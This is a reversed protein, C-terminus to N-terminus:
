VTGTAPASLSTGLLLTAMLCTILVGSIDMVVQISTSSNAPDVGVAQFLIPLLAGVIVSIFVILMLALTVTITEEPTVSGNFHVRVFGFAGVVLCLASAMLAERLVFKLKASDPLRGLAIERIARVTAQNGANGGAGVLMTLFYIIAPHTRLLKENYELIFSSCSQFILLGILWSGRDIMNQFFPVERNHGEDLLDDKNFDLKIKAGTADLALLIKKERHRSIDLMHKLSGVLTELEVNRNTLEDFEQTTFSGEIDQSSARRPRKIMSPSTCSSSFSSNSVLSKQSESKIMVGNEHSHNLSQEIISLHTCRKLYIIRNVRERM